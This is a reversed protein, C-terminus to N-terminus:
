SGAVGHSHTCTHTHPQTYDTQTPKHTRSAHAYTNATHTHTHTRTNHSHTHTHQTYHTRDTHIRTSSADQQIDSTLRLQLELRIARGQPTDPLCLDLVSDRYIAVPDGPLPPAADYVKPNWYITLCVQDFLKSPSGTPEQALSCAITGSIVSNVPGFVRGQGTSICHAVCGNPRMFLSTPDEAARSSCSRLNGEARDLTASRWHNGICKARLEGRYPLHHAEDSIRKIAEGTTRDTKSLPTSVPVM